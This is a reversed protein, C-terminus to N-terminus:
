CLSEQTVNSEATGVAKVLGKPQGINADAAVSMQTVTLGNAFSVEPGPSFIRITSIFSEAFVYNSEQVPMLSWLQAAEVIEPVVDCLGM